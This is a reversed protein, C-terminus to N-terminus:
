EYNRPTSERPVPAPTTAVRQSLFEAQEPRDVDENAIDQEAESLKQILSAFADAVNRHPAWAAVGLSIIRQDFGGPGDEALVCLWERGNEALDAYFGNFEVRLVDRDDDRYPSLVQTVEVGPVRERLLNTITKLNKRDFYGMREGQCILKYRHLPNSNIRVPCLRHYGLQYGNRRINSVVQSQELTLSVTHGIRIRYRFRAQRYRRALSARSDSSATM